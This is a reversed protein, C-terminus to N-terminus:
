LFFLKAFTTITELEGYGAGCYWGCNSIKHSALLAFGSNIPRKLLRPISEWGPPITSDIGPSRFIHPFEPEAVQARVFEIIEAM